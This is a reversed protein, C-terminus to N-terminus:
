DETIINVHITMTDFSGININVKAKASQLTPNDSDIMVIIDHQHGIDEGKITLPVGFPTMKEGFVETITERILQKLQNKNM